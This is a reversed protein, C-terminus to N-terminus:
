VSSGIDIEHLDITTRTNWDGDTSMGYRLSIIMGFYVFDFVIHQVSTVHIVKWKPEDYM